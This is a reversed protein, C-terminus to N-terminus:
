TFTKAYLWVGTAVTACLLAIVFRGRKRHAAPDAFAQQGRWLQLAWLALAPLAFCLHIGLILLPSPPLDGFRVEAEFAVVTALFVFFAVRM